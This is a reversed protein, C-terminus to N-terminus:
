KNLRGKFGVRNRIALRELPKDVKNLRKASKQVYLQVFGKFEVAKGELLTDAVSTELQAVTKEKHLKEARELQLETLGLAKGLAEYNVFPEKKAKGLAENVAELLFGKTDFTDKVFVKEIAM